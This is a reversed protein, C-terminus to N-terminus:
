LAILCMEVSVLSLSAFINSFSIHNDKAFQSINDYQKQYDFKDGTNKIYGIIM